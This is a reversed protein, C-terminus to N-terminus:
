PHWGTAINLASRDQFVLNSRGDQVFRWLARKRGKGRKSRKRLARSQQSARPKYVGDVFTGVISGNDAFTNTSNAGRVNFKVDNGAYSFNVGPVLLEIRSVDTIGGREMANEDFASVSLGVDQISEARKEATVVVEEIQANTQAM